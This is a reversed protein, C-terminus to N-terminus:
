SGAPSHLARCFTKVADTFTGISAGKTLYGSAGMALAKVQDSPNTSTTFIYIPLERLKQHRKIEALVGLGNVRPLNLDLIILDPEPANLYTGTKALFALAQAGDRVRFLIPNLGEDKLALQFLFVTADDDEVYLIVCEELKKAVIRRLTDVLILCLPYYNLSYKGPQLSTSQDLCLRRSAMSFGCAANGIGVFNM